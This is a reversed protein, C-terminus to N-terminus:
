DTVRSSFRRSVRISNGCGDPFVRCAHRISANAIGRTRRREDVTLGDTALYERTIQRLRHQRSVYRNLNHRIANTAYTSFRYGRDADFIEVCRLLTVHSESLLEDLRFEVIPTRASGGGDGAEFVGAGSLEAAADIRGALARIADLTDRPCDDDDILQRLREARHKLFNM